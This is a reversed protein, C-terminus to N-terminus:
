PLTIQHAVGNITIVALNDCIGNGFDLVAVWPSTPIANIRITRIKGRVIWRCTFRKILPETISSSWGVLLNGRKVQGEASGTISFIDDRFDATIFGEIQTIVKDSKWKTYDGNPRTLKGDRVTVTYQRNTTGTSTNTIKHVGEVHISDIYFGDFTTTAMATPYILRNTYETIIKGSRLHGDNGICGTNGFDLVVRVPFISPPNLHTIIVTPCAMNRGFVGTGALGVEDNVGMADDFLGNFILEAQGDSESSVQSATVEQEDDSASGSHEKACSLVMWLCFFFSIIALFSLNFRSKM